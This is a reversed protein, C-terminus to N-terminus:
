KVPESQIKVKDKGARGKVKFFGKLFVSEQMAELNEDLKETSTELNAMTAKLNAAFQEDNLLMGMTNKSDNLKTSAQQLNEALQSTAVTTQELRAMSTRLDNFVATDTLLNNVLGDKNNLRTTFQALAASARSTTLSVQRLNTITERFNQAMLTDNLLTGVTGKGSAMRSTVQKLDTTISILNQNNEQLTAMIDDSSLTQEAVLMDGNEVVPAQESGGTVVINKNGILSESGIKVRADKHIYKQAEEDINMLIEVQKAGKFDISKVTGVKVGSFRVNSGVKLGESDAVVTKVEVSKVFRKQQGGLTLVAAVFIIIGIFVFLGVVVSRKNEAVSM